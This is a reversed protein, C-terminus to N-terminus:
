MTQIASILDAKLIRKTSQALASGRAELYATLEAVTKRKLAAESLQSWSEEDQKDNFSEDQEGIDLSEGLPQADDSTLPKTREGFGVFQLGLREAITVLKPAERPRVLTIVRGTQGNRGTRGALHTYGAASSPPALLVVTEIGPLDLGRAFKDGVVYVPTSKWDDDDGNSTSTSDRLNSSLSRVNEMQLTDELYTQVLHVGLRSPFVLTPAPPLQQFTDGLAQLTGEHNESKQGTQSEMLVHTHTLTDPMLSTKRKDVDKGTARADAAVLVAAKDISPSDLLKQLQRRLTRGVTASACILQLESLPFESLLMETQTPASKKKRQRPNDSQEAERAVGETRLLRDAEDLVITKLNTHLLNSKGAERLEVLLDRLMRPTGAIISATEVNGNLLPEDDGQRGEGVVHAASVGDDNPAWLMDVTSKIQLALEKSPTVILTTAAEQRNTRSVHPVLYALTKGTGTPSAIVANLGKVVVPFAANQIETPEELSNLRSKIIPGVPLTGWVTHPPATKKKSKKDDDSEPAAKTVRRQKVEERSTELTALITEAEELGIDGGGDVRIEQYLLDGEKEWRPTRKKGSSKVKVGARRRAYGQQSRSDLKRGTRRPIAMGNCSSTLVIIVLSVRM